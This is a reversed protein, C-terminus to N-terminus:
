HDLDPNAEFHARVFDRIEAESWDALPKSPRSTTPPRLQARPASHTIQAERWAKADLDLVVRTHEVPPADAEWMIQFSAPGLASAMLQDFMAARHHWDRIVDLLSDFDGQRLIQSEGSVGSDGTM